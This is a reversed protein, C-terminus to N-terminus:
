IQLLETSPTTAYSDERQITFAIIAFGEVLIAVVSRMSAGRTGKGSGHLLGSVNAM